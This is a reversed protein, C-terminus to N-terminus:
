GMRMRDLRAQCIYNTTSIIIMPSIILPIKLQRKRMEIFFKMNKEPKNFKSVPLSVKYNEKVNRYFLNKRKKKQPFLIPVVDSKEM